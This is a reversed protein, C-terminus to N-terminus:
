QECGWHVRTEVKVPKVGLKQEVQKRYRDLLRGAERGQRPHATRDGQSQNVWASLKGDAELLVAVWGDEEFSGEVLAVQNPATLPLDPNARSWGLGTWVAVVAPPDLPAEYFAEAMAGNYPCSGEPPIPIPESRSCGVLLLAILLLRRM